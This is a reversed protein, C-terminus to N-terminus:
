HIRQETIRRHVQVDRGEREEIISMGEGKKTCVGEKDRNCSGV